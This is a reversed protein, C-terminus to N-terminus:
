NKRNWFPFGNIWGSATFFKGWMGDTHFDMSEVKLVYGSNGYKEGGESNGNQDLSGNM